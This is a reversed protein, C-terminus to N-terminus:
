PAAEPAAQAMAGADQGGAALGLELRTAYREIEGTEGEIQGLFFNYPLLTLVAVTIGTATAILAEAVGGTVAHPQSNGSLAMIQFSRIMGLITGLLGLLPALTIITELAILGRKMAAVQRIGEAEMAKAASRPHRLGAALVRGLPHDLADALRAAEEGREEELAALVAEAAQPGQAARLGWFYRGKEIVIAISIISCGLLPLMIWGGRMLDNPM